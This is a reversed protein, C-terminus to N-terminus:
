NIEMENTNSAPINVRVERVAEAQQAATRRGTNGIAAQVEESLDSSKEKAKELREEKMVAYYALMNPNWEKGCMEYSKKLFTDGTAICKKKDVDVYYQGTVILEEKARTAGVFWKRIQEDIETSYASPLHHYKKDDLKDICLYTIDWELGKASHITTLCVGNYKGQKTFTSSQGYIKFDEMFETLEEIDRCTTVKDLFDQYCEDNEELDLAKAFETFTEITKSCNLLNGKFEEAIEELEVGSKGKLGGRMLVNKYDLLGQTGRGMFADYFTCLAMVRSNQTVPVPSKLVSPVGLKTLEEAVATLQNRDSMIVAIDRKGEDWKEKVQKAIWRYQSKASYFGQVEPKIGEPKTPVLDKNVKVQAENNIKNAMDITARNSRHNEVLNFDDFHGFYDQFNVMYEPSTHRFGYISQSDDGVCMLSKFCTTDKMNQLIKIQPLDTDQFEDVIIHNYGMSEFLDPRIEALKEVGQIQDAFEILNKQKLVKNFQISMLFLMDLDREKLGYESAFDSPCNQRTYHNEKIESLLKDIVVFAVKSAKLNYIKIAASAYTLSDFKPFQDLLKNIISRKTEPPCVRPPRTYGLLEYNENVIQQCFANFTTSTFTDPDVPVGQRACYDVARATMEGAGANTFTLVAIKDEPHNMKLQGVRRSVVFTKGSGPGANVRATGTYYSIVQTQANSPRVASAIAVSAREEVPAAIPPETYNCINNMACSACDEPSCSHGEETELNAKVTEANTKVTENFIAEVIKNYKTNATDYPLIYGGDPGKVLAEMDRAKDKEALYLYQVVVPKDAGTEALYKEGALGLCYNELGKINTEDALHARGTKVKCVYLCNPADVMYDYIATVPEGFYDVTYYEGNNIDKKFLKNERGERNNEWYVFREIRAAQLTLTSHRMEENEWKYDKKDYARALEAKIDPIPENM